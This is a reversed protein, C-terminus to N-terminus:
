MIESGLELVLSFKPAKWAVAPVVLGYWFFYVLWLSFLVLNFFGLISFPLSLVPSMHSVTSQVM